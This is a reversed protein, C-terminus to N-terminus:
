FFEMVPKAYEMLAQSISVARFGYPAEIESISPTELYQLIPSPISESRTTNKENLVLPRRNSDRRKKQMTIKWKHKSDFQRTAWGYGSLFLLKFCRWFCSNKVCGRSLIKRCPINIGLINIVLLLIKLVVM